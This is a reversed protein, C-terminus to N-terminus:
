NDGWNGIDDDSKKKDEGLSILDYAKKNHVGPCVYQYPTGWPDLFQGSETRIYPGSWFQMLKGDTRAVLAKLGEYQTPCRGLDLEFMLIAKELSSLDANLKAYQRKIADKNIVTASKASEAEKLTKVEAVKSIVGAKATAATKADPTITAINKLKLKGRQLLMYRFNAVPGYKDDKSLKLLQLVGISGQGTKFIFTTPKKGDTSMLRSVAFQPPQEMMTIIKKPNADWAKPEPVCIMGTKGIGQLGNAEGKFFGGADAGKDALWDKLKDAGDTGKLQVPVTFLEGTEFDIFHNATIKRSIAKSLPVPKADTTMMVLGNDEKPMTALKVLAKKARDQLKEEKPYLVLLKQLMEEGREVKGLRIYCISQRYFAEAAIAPPAQKDLLDQYVKIATSLDGATEEIYVGRELQVQATQGLVQGCLSLVLLINFALRILGRM